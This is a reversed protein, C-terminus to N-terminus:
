ASHSRSTAPPTRFASAAVWTAPLPVPGPASGALEVILDVTRRQAEGISEADLNQSGAFVHFGQFDLDALAAEALVAPVQEADIGFQQPGGGLRM